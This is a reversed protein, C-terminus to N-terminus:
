LSQRGTETISDKKAFLCETKRKLKNICMQKFLLASNMIVFCCLFYKVYKRWKSPPPTHTNGIETEFM